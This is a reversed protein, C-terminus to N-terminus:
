TMPIKFLFKVGIGGYVGCDEREQVVGVMLLEGIEIEAYFYISM